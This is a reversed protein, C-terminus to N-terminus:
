PLLQCFSSSSNPNSSSSHFSGKQPAISPHIRHILNHPIYLSSFSKFKTFLRRWAIPFIYIENGMTSPFSKAECPLIKKGEEFKRRSQMQCNQAVKTSRVYREGFFESQSLRLVLKFSKELRLSHHTSCESRVEPDGAFQTQVCSDHVANRHRAAAGQGATAVRQGSAESEKHRDGRM